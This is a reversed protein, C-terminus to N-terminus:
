DMSRAARYSFVAGTTICTNNRYEIDSTAENNIVTGLQNGIYTFLDQCEGAGLGSYVPGTINGDYLVRSGQKMESANRGFWWSGNWTASSSIFNPDWAITNRQVTLDVTNYVYQCATVGGCANGVAEDKFVGIINM